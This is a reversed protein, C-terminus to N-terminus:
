FRLAAGLRLIFGNWFSAEANINVLSFFHLRLGFGTHFLPFINPLNIDIEEEWEQYSKVVDDVVEKQGGAWTYIGEYNYGFECKMAGFGFGLTFYPSVPFNPVVDWRLSLNTLIPKLEIYLESNVDAYSGDSFYQKVTGDVVAYMRNEEISLGISFWGKRGGPFYRIGLGLNHGESDFALEHEYDANFVPFDDRLYRYVEDRIERGVRANLEEEFWSKILNASWLSYHVGIEIKGQLGEKPLEPLKVEAQTEQAAASSLLVFLVAIILCVFINKRRIKRM